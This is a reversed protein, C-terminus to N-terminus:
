YATSADRPLSRDSPDIVQTTSEPMKAKRVTSAAIEAKAEINGKPTGTLQTVPLAM